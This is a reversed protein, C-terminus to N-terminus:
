GYLQKGMRLYVPTNLLRSLLYNNIVWRPHAEAVTLTTSFCSIRGSILYLEGGVCYTYLMQIQRDTLEKFFARLTKEKSEIKEWRKVSPSYANKNRYAYPKFFHSDLLVLVADIIDQM